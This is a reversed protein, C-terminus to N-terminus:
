EEVTADGPDGAEGVDVPLAAVTLEPIAVTRTTRDLADLPPIDEGAAARLEKFRRAAPMVSRELSGVAENYAGVARDLGRGMRVLHNALTRTRDYLTRGLESIERANEAVQEQRWGYAVAKLLAILTTPTALIVRQEAGFEILSPDQELAASFFTEGPLFLVVFEPTPELHEHYARSSLDVLHRRVQAAHARLSELRAEEDPAELAELYHSLPVKSDVAVCRGSPLRVVLDPRRRGADTDVSAQQTFDCHEVMGAIEVVRRLQIEGWRGRVSPARLAKVLNTTEDRLRLQTEQVARLHEALTNHTALRNNEAEQLKEQVRTLTEALPRVMGEVATARQELDKQSLLHLRGFRETALELFSTSSSRLAEASLAQFTDRLRAEATDLLEAKEAAARQAAETLGALQEDRARVREELVAARGRALLWVLAAGLLAAGLLALLLPVLTLHIAV